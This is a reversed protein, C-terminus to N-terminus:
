NIPSLRKNQKSLQGLTNFCKTILRLYCVAFSCFFLQDLLHMEYAVSLLINLFEFIYVKRYRQTVHVHLVLLLYLGLINM